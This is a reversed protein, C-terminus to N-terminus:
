ASGIPKSIACVDTNTSEDQGDSPHSGNGPVVTTFHRKTRPYGSPEISDHDLKLLVPYPSEALRITCMLDTCREPTMKEELEPSYWGEAMGQSVASHRQRM